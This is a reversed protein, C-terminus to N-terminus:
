YNMIDIIAPKELFFGHEMYIVCKQTAASVTLLLLPDAQVLKLNESLRPCIYQSFRDSRLDIAHLNQSYFGQLTPEEDRM